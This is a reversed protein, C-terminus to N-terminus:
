PYPRVEHSTHAASSKEAGSPHTILMQISLFLSVIVDFAIHLREPDAVSRPKLASSEVCGM